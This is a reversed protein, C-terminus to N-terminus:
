GAKAPEPAAGVPLNKEKWESEKRERLTKWAGEMLPVHCGGQGKCDNKGVTEGCGGLGKCDNQGGCSHEKATACTGQGRCENKEGKGLGKCDNLGRCLHVDAKVLQADGTAASGGEATANSEQPAKNCGILGGAALGSLAAATLRHFDRRDLRQHNV